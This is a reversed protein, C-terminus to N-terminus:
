YPAFWRNTPSQNLYFETLRRPEAHGDMWGLDCRHSHRAIPRADKADNLDSGPAVMKLTDPRLTVFDNETGLDGLMVTAAPSLFASRRTPAPSGADTMDVFALENLGYSNVKANRDTPCLHVQLSELYPNLTQPWDVEEGAANTYAVPPLTDRNDDAYVFAALAQQRVSNVCFQQRGREKAQALSPLLLAALIAIIAIVVLLEILTFAKQRMLASM